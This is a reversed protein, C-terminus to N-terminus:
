LNKVIAQIKEWTVEVPFDGRILHLKGQKQYYDELVQTKEHYIKIRKWATAEFDDTRGSSRGRQLIRRVLVEDEVDLDITATVSHGQSALSRDLFEAQSITRPYGDFLYGNPNSHHKEFREIIGNAIEDLVYNGGAIISDIEKGIQTQAAVEQRLYEGTSIHTLGFMKVLNAAQTGKGSGPPGLLVINLM